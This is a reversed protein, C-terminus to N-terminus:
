EDFDEPDEDDPKRKAKRRAYAANTAQVQLAADRTIFDGARVPSAGFGPLVEVKGGAHKFRRLDKALQESAAPGSSRLPPRSPASM